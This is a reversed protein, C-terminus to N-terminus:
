YPPSPLLPRSVFSCSPRSRSRCLRGFSSTRRTCLNPRLTTQIRSDEISVDVDEEERFFSLLRRVAYSAYLGNKLYEILDEFELTCIYTENRKLIAVSFRFVAEVGEAFVLDFVSSVLELPFRYRGARSTLEAGGRGL